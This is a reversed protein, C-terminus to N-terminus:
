IGYPKISKKYISSYIELLTKKDREFRYMLDGNEYKYEVIIPETKKNENICLLYNKNKHQIIDMIQLKQNDDIEIKEGIKLVGNEM